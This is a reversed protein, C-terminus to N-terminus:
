TMWKTEPFKKCIGKGHETCLVNIWCALNRSCAAPIKACPLKSPTKPFGPAWFTNHFPVGRNRWQFGGKNTVYEAGIWFYGSKRKLSAEIFRKSFSFDPQHTGLALWNSHAALNQPSGPEAAGNWRQALFTGPLNCPAALSQPSLHPKSLAEEDRDQINLVEAKYKICVTVLQKYTSLADDFLYLKNKYGAWNKSLKDRLDAIEAEIEDLKGAMIVLHGALKEAELVLQVDSLTDYDANTSVMYTRLHILAQRLPEYKLKEVVCLGGVWVISFFLCLLLAFGCLVSRHTGLLSPQVTKAAGGAPPKKPAM